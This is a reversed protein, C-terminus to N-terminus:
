ARTPLVWTNGPCPGLNLPSLGNPGPATLCLGSATNRLINGSEVTWLQTADTTSCTGTGIQTGDTTSGGLPM